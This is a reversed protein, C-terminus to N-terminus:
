RTVCKRKTASKYPESFILEYQPSLHFYTEYNVKTMGKANNNKFIKYFM